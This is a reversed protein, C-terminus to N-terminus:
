LREHRLRERLIWLAIPILLLCFWPGGDQWLYANENNQNNLVEKSGATDLIDRIDATDASFLYFSGNGAEALQQLNSIITHNAMNNDLMALVNVHAGGQAITKAARFSNSTPNSATILLLSGHNAAAQTLLKYGETLGQGSDSGSVPMMDPNLDDLLGSLTNADASLPSATFAEETFAVLGMQTNQASHILDRIKYKARMLRDPKIDTEYMAASLDLVLMMANVDRYIPLSIKKWAPGALAFISIVYFLFLAFYFLRQSHYPSSQVLAPLLHPDCVKKWPNYQKFSYLVWVLYLIAPVLLWLWDPRIFHLPMM